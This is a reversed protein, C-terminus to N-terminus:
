LRDGVGVGVVVVVGVGVGVGVCVQVWVRLYRPPQPRGARRRQQLGTPFLV